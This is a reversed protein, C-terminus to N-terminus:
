FDGLIHNPSLTNEEDISEINKTSDNAVSIKDLNQLHLPLSKNSIMHLSEEEMSKWKAPSIQENSGSLIRGAYYDTWSSCGHFHTSTITHLIFQPSFFPFLFLSFSHSLFLSLFLSTTFIFKFEHM